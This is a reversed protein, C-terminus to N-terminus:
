RKQLGAVEDDFSVVSFSEPDFSESHEIFEGFPVFKVELAVDFAAALRLLTELNVRRDGHNELECIRPQAMDALRALDGQTMNRETRLKRIQNPLGFAVQAAVYGDRYEKERLEHVLNSSISM